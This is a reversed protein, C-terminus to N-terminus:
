MQECRRKSYKGEGHHANKLLDSLEASSRFAAVFEDEQIAGDGNSSIARFVADFQQWNMNLKLLVKVAGGFKLRNLKNHIGTWSGSKGAVITTNNQMRSMAQYADSLLRDEEVSLPEMHALGQRTRMAEIRKHKEELDMQLSEPDLESKKQHHLFRGYELVAQRVTTLVEETTAHNPIKRAKVLKSHLEQGSVGGAQKLTM